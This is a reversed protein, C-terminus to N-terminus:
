KTKIPANPYADVSACEFAVNQWIEYLPRFKEWLAYCASPTINVKLAEITVGGDTMTFQYLTEM